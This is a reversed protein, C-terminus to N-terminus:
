GDDQRAGAPQVPASRTREVRTPAGADDHFAVRWLGFGLGFGLTAALVVAAVPYPARSASAGEAPEATVAAARPLWGGPTRRQYLQVVQGDQWVFVGEVAAQPDVVLAIQSPGSFFNEHIFLDHESLFVGFGPHSHYWGVIQDGPPFDRDLTRHVHQWADQTFTLTARREDAKMAPIAGTIMPLGPSRGTRGVLVGGVERDANDFVHLYILTESVHRLGVIELDLNRSLERSRRDGRTM